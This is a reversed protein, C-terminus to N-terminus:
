GDVADTRLEQRSAKRPLAFVRKKRSQGRRRIGNDRRGINKVKKKPPM